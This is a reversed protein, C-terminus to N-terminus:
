RQLKRRGCSRLGVMCRDSLRAPHLRPARGAGAARAHQPLLHLRGGHGRQAGACAGAIMAAVAAISGAVLAIMWAERTDSGVGVAHLVVLVWMAYTIWHVVRWVNYGLRSRLLSTVVVALVLDFALAGLGLWVPRYASGFPVLVDIWHIPAFGDIVATAVHIVIFVAAYAPRVQFSPVDPAVLSAVIGVVWALSVLTRIRRM